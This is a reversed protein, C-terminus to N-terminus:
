REAATETVGVREAPVNRGVALDELAGGLDADALKLAVHENSGDQANPRRDDEHPGASPDTATIPPGPEPADSSPTTVSGTGAPTSTTM